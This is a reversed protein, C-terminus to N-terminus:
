RASKQRLLYKAMEPWFTGMQQRNLQEIEKGYRDHVLKRFAPSAKAARLDRNRIITAIAAPNQKSADVGKAPTGNNITM